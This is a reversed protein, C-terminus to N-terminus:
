GCARTNCHGGTDSSHQQFQISIYAVSEITKGESPFFDRLLFSGRQAAAAATQILEYQV